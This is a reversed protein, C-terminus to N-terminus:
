AAKQFYQQYWAVFKQVGTKTPTAPIYNLTKVLRSADCHSAPADGPQMPSLQIIAPKNLAQEIERVFDKLKVPNSGGVNFLQYPAIGSTSTEPQLASWAASPTPVHPILGIVSQVVDDVYTFDRLMEGQNFLTIPQGKSIADVFLFLAMDPRGWPGYVSFFRLGTCPIDYLHAYSHAMLENAKKSAAYLSLPHDTNTDEHFPLARSGGYVSSSSAFLFHKVPNHRVTELMSLFGAYNNELYHKPNKISDRVGAQAALHIVVDIAYKAFLMKLAIEDRIDLEHWHLNAYAQLNKVRDKKLQVSYYPDFNDIGIVTKNQELLTKTIHYGIFGAAGTVLIVM